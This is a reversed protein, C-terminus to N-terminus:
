FHKQGTNSWECSNLFGRFVLAAIASEKPHWFPKTKAATCTRSSSAEVLVATIAPRGRCRGNGAVNLVFDCCPQLEMQQSLRLRLM